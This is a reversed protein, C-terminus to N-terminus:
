ITNAIATLRDIPYYGLIMIQSGNKYFLVEGPHQLGDSDTNPPVLYAALGEVSGLSAGPDPNNSLIGNIHSLADAETFGAPLQEEIIELHSYEIAITANPDSSDAVPLFWVKQITGDTVSTASTASSSASSSIVSDSAGNIVSSSPAGVPFGAKSRASALSVSVAQSNGFAAIRPAWPVYAMGLVTRLSPKKTTSGGFHSAVLLTTLM